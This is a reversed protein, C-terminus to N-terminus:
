EYSIRGDYSTFQTKLRKIDEDFLIVLVVQLFVFLTISGKIEFEGEMVTKEFDPFITVGSGLLPILMGFVALVEGMKAPDEFGLKLAIKLKKPKVNKWIKSLQKKCKSFAPKM